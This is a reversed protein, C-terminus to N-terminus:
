FSYDKFQNRLKLKHMKGTATMPISEVYEVANPMWWKAIKGTLFAVVDDHSLSKGEHEEIILLPREDW